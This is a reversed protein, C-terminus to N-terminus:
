GLIGEAVGRVLCALFCLGWEVIAEPLIVDRFARLWPGCNKPM